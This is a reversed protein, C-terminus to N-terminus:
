TAATIRGAGACLPVIHDVQYGPRAGSHEGISRSRSRSTRLFGGRTRSRHRMGSMDSSVRFDRVYILIPVLYVAHM